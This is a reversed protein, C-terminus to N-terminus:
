ISRSPPLQGRSKALKDIVESMTPPRSEQKQEIRASAVNIDQLKAKAEQKTQGSLGAKWTRIDNGVEAWIDYLPRKDGAQRKQAEMSAALTLAREDEVIDKFEVKFRDLMHQNQIEERVLKMVDPTTDQRGQIAQAIRKAAEPDFPANQIAETLDDPQTPQPTFQQNARALLEEYQKKLLAAEELRKDAALEKQMARRGEELVKSQPVEREEGDVKLKEIPDDVPAPEFEAEIGPADPEYQPNHDVDEAVYETPDRFQENATAIDQVSPPKKQFGDIINQMAEQRSDTAM